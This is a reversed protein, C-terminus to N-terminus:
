GTDVTLPHGLCQTVKSQLSLHCDFLRKGALLAEGAEAQLLQPLQDPQDLVVRGATQVSSM